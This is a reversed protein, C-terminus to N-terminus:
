YVSLHCISHFTHCNSACSSASDFLFPIGGKPRREDGRRGVAQGRRSRRRPNCDGHLLKVGPFIPDSSSFFLSPDRFTMATPSSDKYRIHQWPFGARQLHQTASQTHIMRSRSSLSLYHYIFILLAFSLSFPDSAKKFTSKVLKNTNKRTPSVSFFPSVTLTKSEHIHLPCSMNKEGTYLLSLM